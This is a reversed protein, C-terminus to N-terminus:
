NKTEGKPNAEDPVKEVNVTDAFRIHAIQNNKSKTLNASNSTLFFNSKEDMYIEDVKHAEMIQHAAIKQVKTLRKM